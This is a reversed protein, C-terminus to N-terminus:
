LDSLALPLKRMRKGTLDFIANALAPAFGPVAPEGAGGPKEDNTLLHVEIPPIDMLRPMPVGSSSTPAHPSCTRGRALNASGACRQGHAAENRMTASVPGPEM